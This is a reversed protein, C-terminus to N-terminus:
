AIIFAKQITDGSPGQATTSSYPRYSVSISLAQPYNGLYEHTGFAIENLNTGAKGPMVTIAKMHRRARM